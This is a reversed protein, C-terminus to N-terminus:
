KTVFRVPFEHQILDCLRMFDGAYFLKVVNECFPKLHGDIQQYHTLMANIALESTAWEGLLLARSAHQRYEYLGPKREEIGDM